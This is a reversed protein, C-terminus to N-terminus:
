RDQGGEGSLEAPCWLPRAFGRQGVTDFGKPLYGAGILHQLLRLVAIYLMDSCSETFM